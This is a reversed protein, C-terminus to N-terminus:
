HRDRNAQACAKGSEGAGPFNAVLGKGTAKLEKMADALRKSFTFSIGWNAAGCGRTKGHLEDTRFCMLTGAAQRVVVKLRRDVFSAGGGEVPTEEEGLRRGNVRGVCFASAYKAYAPDKHTWAEYGFSAYVEPPPPHVTHKQSNSSPAM